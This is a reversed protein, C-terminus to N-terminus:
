RATSRGAAIYPEQASVSEGSLFLLTGASQPLGAPWDAATDVVGPTLPTVVVKDAPVGFAACISEKSFQSITLLVTAAHATHPYYESRDRLDHPTFYNPFFQEQVDALTAVSPRHLLDPALCNLPCFTVDFKHAHRFIQEQDEFQIPVVRNREAM